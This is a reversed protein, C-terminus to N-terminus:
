IAEKSIHGKNINKEIRIPIKKMAETVKHGAAIYEQLIARLEQAENMALNLVVRNNKTTM